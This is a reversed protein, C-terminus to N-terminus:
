ESLTEQLRAIHEPSSVGFYLQTLAHWVGKKKLFRQMEPLMRQMLPLDHNYAAFVMVAEHMPMTMFDYATNSQLIRNIRWIIYQRKAETLGAGAVAGAAMGLAGGIMGARVYNPEYDHQFEEEKKKKYKAREYLAGVAGGTGVVMAAGKTAGKLTRRVGRERLLEVNWKTKAYLPDKILDACQLSLSTGVLLLYLYWQKKM